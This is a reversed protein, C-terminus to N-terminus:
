VRCSLMVPFIWFKMLRKRFIRTFGTKEILGDRILMAGDSYEHREEDMTALLLANKILLTTM